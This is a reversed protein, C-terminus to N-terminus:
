NYIRYKKINNKGRILITMSDGVELTGIDYNGIWPNWTTGGDISFGAEKISSPVNDELIINEADSTGANSVIITYLIMSCPMLNASKVVSIDALEVAVIEVDVTYTNNDPNSDETTSTVNATNSIIGSASSDVTGRILICREEGNLLTGIAYSGMWPSFTVGGDISFEPNLIETPIVDSLVVNEADAPGANSVSITYTLIDGPNVPDRNGIKCVGIDALDIIDIIAISTNNDYNSDPTTSTVNASNIICCSASSSVIGRILITKTEGNLLTGINYSGTWPNFTVGDDISFEEDIISDPIIDTLIVNGADLPGAISIDITYTIAQGIAILDQKSTKMVSIDASLIELPVDNSTVSYFNLIGCEVPTYNYTVVSRNIVINPNTFFDVQADFTIVNKSGGTIDPIVFGDNPNLSVDSVGNVTVTGPVFSLGDPISDLFVVNTIPSTCTNEVTVTYTVIDGISATLTSVTKESIIEPIEVQKLKVGDIAFNNGPINLSETLLQITLSINNGSNITTGIEKWEPVNINTSIICGFPVDNLIVNCNEDLLRLSIQPETFGAEKVLNLIWTSLLYNTNPQVSVTDRFFVAGPNFGNVVM